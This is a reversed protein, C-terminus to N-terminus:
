ADETPFPGVFELSLRQGLEYPELLTSRTAYSVDDGDFGELFALFQRMDWGFRERAIGESADYAPGAFQGFGAEVHPVEALLLAGFACCECSTAALRPTGDLGIEVGFKGRAIKAGGARAKEMAARLTAEASV